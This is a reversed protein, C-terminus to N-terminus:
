FNAVTGGGAVYRLEVNPAGATLAPMRGTLGDGFRLQRQDRDVVFVRDSPGAFSFDVLPKWTRWKADRADRMRLEVTKPLPPALQDSGDDLDIAPRGSIPLWTGEFAPRNVVRQHRAA